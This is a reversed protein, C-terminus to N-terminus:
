ARHRRPTGNCPVVINNVIRIEVLKVINQIPHIGIPIECPKFCHNNNRTPGHWKPM